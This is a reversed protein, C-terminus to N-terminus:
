GAIVLRYGYDAEDLELLAANRRTWEGSELDARLREVGQTLQEDDMAALSSISARV